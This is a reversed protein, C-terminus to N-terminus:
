CDWGNGATETQDECEQCGRSARHSGAGFLAAGPLWLFAAEQRRTSPGQRPASHRQQRGSPSCLLFSYLLFFNLILQRFIGHLFSWRSSTLIQHHYHYATFNTVFWDLISFYKALLVLYALMPNCLKSYTSLDFVGELKSLTTHFEKSTAM